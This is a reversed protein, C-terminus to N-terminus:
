GDPTAEVVGPAPSRDCAAQGAVPAADAAGMRRGCGRLPWVFTLAGTWLVHAVVPAVLGGTWWFLGGWVVAGLLAALTLAWKGAVLQVATYVAVAGVLGLRGQVFGRFFLEEAGAMAVVPGVMTSVRDGERLSYLDTIQDLFGPFLRCLVAHGVHTAGLWASGVLLGAGLAALSVPGVVTDLRETVALAVVAYVSLAGATVWTRPWIGESPRRFLFAWGALALVLGGVLLLSGAM